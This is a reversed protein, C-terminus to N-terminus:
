KKSKSKSKSKPKAKGRSIAVVTVLPSQIDHWVAVPVCPAGPRM